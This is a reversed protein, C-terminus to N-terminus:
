FEQEEYSDLVSDIKNFIFTNSRPYWESKFPTDLRHLDLKMTAGGMMGM